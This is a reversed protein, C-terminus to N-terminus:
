VDFLASLGAVGGRGQKAVTVHSKLIVTPICLQLAEVFYCCVCYVVQISTITAHMTHLKYLPSHLGSIVSEGKMAVTTIIYSYVQILCLVSYHTIMKYLQMAVYM